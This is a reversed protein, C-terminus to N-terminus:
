ISLPAEPPMASISGALEFAGVIGADDGLDPAVVISAVDSGVFWLDFYGGLRAPLERRVLDLLLPQKMVGGGLVIRQPSVVAMLNVIAAGLYNAELRWIENAHDLLESPVGVRADIASGSALGELCDTHYPCVGPFVDGNVRPVLMHGIEPHGVGQFPCDDVIIGGGIGTGVTLYMSVRLGRSAGHRAEALAAANVDTDVAVSAGKFVAEVFSHWKFGSWGPKPTPGITGTSQDVPGFSAIGVRDVKEELQCANFFAAMRSITEVPDATPVVCRMRTTRIEEVSSGVACVIKTGGAEIAAVTV